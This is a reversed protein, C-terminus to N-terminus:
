GGFLSGSPFQLKLLVSFVVSVGLVILAALLLSKWWNTGQLLLLLCTVMVFGTIFFGFYPVLFFFATILLFTILSPSLLSVGTQEGPVTRARLLLLLGILVFAVGLISPFTSNSLTQGTSSQTDWHSATWYVWGGLLVSILGVVFHKNLRFQLTM